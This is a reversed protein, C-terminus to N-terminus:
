SDVFGFPTATAPAADDDGDLAAPAMGGGRGFVDATSRGEEEEEEDGEAPAPSNGEEVLSLFVATWARLLSPALGPGSAPFSVLLCAASPSSLPFPFPASSSAPSSLHVVLGHGSWASGAARVNKSKSATLPKSILISGSNKVPRLADLVGS